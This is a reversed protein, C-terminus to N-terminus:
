SVLRLADAATNTQEHPGDHHTNSHPPTTDTIQGSRWDIALTAEGGAPGHRNRTQTARLALSSDGGALCPTPDIRLQVHAWSPDAEHCAPRVLAGFAEGAETALLLRRFARGDIRDLGAWVAGVAPSRLAQEAVALADVPREPAVVLLREAHVGWGIAATPFFGGSTDIVVLEGRQKCARVCLWLAVLGAGSGIDDALLDLLRRPRPEGGILNSLSAPQTESKQDPTTAASGLMGRLRNLKELRAESAPIAATPVPETPHNANPM